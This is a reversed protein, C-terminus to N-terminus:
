ELLKGVLEALEETDEVPVLLRTEGNFGVLDNESDYKYLTLTMETFTATNRRFTFSLKEGRGAAGSVSGEAEGSSKLNYIADLVAQGAEADLERGGLYFRRIAEAEGGSGTAPAGGGKIEVTYVSGGLSIDLSEVTDWDMLCIDDPRVDEYGFLALRDEVSAMVLYVMRSGAIRAYCRDGSYDGFELTLTGGAEGEADSFDELTAVVAPADLGYGALEAEGAKYNVCEAFVLDAVLSVIDRVKNEDAARYEGDEVYFRKYVSSYSLGGNDELRVVSRTRGGSSVTLKGAESADPLTEFSLVDYLGIEFAEPLESAFTHIRTEDGNFLAYRDGTVPNVDGFVLSYTSGGAKFGLKLGPEDLGYDATGVSVALSRTARIDALKEALETLAEQRVPFDADGDYSWVSGDFTFSLSENKYDWSINSIDGPSLSTLREGTEEAKSKEGNLDLSKLLLWGGASLLLALALIGLRAGRKM